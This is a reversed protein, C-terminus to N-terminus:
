SAKIRPKQSVYYLIAASSAVTLVILAYHGFTVSSAAKLFTVSSPDSSVVVDAAPKIVFIFLPAGLMFVLTSFRLLMSSPDKILTSIQCLVLCVIIGPIISTSVASPIMHAYYDKMTEGGVADYTADVLLIGLVIGALFLTLPSDLMKGFFKFDSVANTATVSTVKTTDGEHANFVGKSWATAKDLEDSWGDGGYQLFDKIPAFKMANGHDRLENFSYERGKYTYTAKVASTVVKGGAPKTRIAYYTIKPM